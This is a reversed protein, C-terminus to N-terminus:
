AQMDTCGDMRVCAHQGQVSARQMGGRRHLGRRDGGGEEGRIPVRPVNAHRCAGARGRATIAIRIWSREGWRWGGAVGVEGRLELVHLPADEGDAGAFAAARGELGDEEERGALVRARVFGRGGEDDHGVPARVAARGGPIM